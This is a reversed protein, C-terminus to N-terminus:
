LAVYYPDGTSCTGDSSDVRAGGGNWGSNTSCSSSASETPASGEMCALLCVDADSSSTTFGYNNNSTPDTPVQTMADSSELESWSGPYNGNNSDAYLTMGTRIQNLDTQRRADRSSERAGNLSALVFSSLIGIIAIVVLLEILTFGRARKLKDYYSM